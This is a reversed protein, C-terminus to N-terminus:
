FREYVGSTKFKLATKNLMSIMTNKWLMKLAFDPVYGADLSDLMTFICGDEDEPDDVVSGAKLKLIGIKEACVNKEIDYPILALSHMGEAPWNFKIVVRVYLFDPVAMVYRMAWPFNNKRKFVCDEPGWDHVVESSQFMEMYTPLEPDRSTFMEVLERPKLPLHITTRILTGAAETKKM